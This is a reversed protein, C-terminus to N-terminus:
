FRKLLTLLNIWSSVQKRPDDYAAAREEEKIIPVKLEEEGEYGNVYIPFSNKEQQRKYLDYLQAPNGPTSINDSENVAAPLAESHHFSIHLTNIRGTTSELIQNVLDFDRVSQNEQVFELNEEVKQMIQSNSLKASDIKPKVSRVPQVLAADLKIVERQQRQKDNNLLDAVPDKKKFILQEDVKAFSIRRKKNDLTSVSEDSLEDTSATETQEFLMEQLDDELCVVVNMLHTLEDSIFSVRQIKRMKAKIIELQSHLFEEREENPLLQMEQRILKVEELQDDNDNDDDEEEEESTNKTGSLRQKAPTVQMQGSMLNRVMENTSQMNQEIEEDVNEAENAEQAELKALMDFIETDTKTTANDKDCDTKDIEPDKPLLERLTQENFNDPDIGLEELLEREELKQFVDNHADAVTKQQERQAREELKEKRVREKHEKLWNNHETENYEEVIEIEDSNPVAGELVPTELNNSCFM